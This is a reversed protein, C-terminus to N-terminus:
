WSVGAMCHLEKTQRNSQLLMCSRCQATCLTEQCQTSTQMCHLLMQLYQQLIVHTVHRQMGRLCKVFNTQPDDADMDQGAADGAQDGSQDKAAHENMVQLQKELQELRKQRAEQKREREAAKEQRKEQLVM